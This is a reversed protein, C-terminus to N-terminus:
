SHLMEDKSLMQKTKKYEPHKNMYSSQFQNLTVFKQTQFDVSHAYQQESRIRHTIDTNRRGSLYSQGSNAITVLGRTRPL